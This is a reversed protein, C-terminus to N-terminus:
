YVLINKFYKEDKGKQKRKAWPIIRGCIETYVVMDVGMGCEFRSQSELNGSCDQHCFLSRVVMRMKCGTIKWMAKM